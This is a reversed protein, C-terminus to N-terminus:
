KTAPVRPSRPVPRPSTRMGSGPLLRTGWRHLATNFLFNATFSLPVLALKWLAPLPAVQDVLIQIALSTAAINGAYWTAFCLFTVPHLRAQFTRRTVFGYVVVVSASSSIVNALGPAVGAITLATFGGVDVLLGLGSGLTFSLLRRIFSRTGTRTSRMM